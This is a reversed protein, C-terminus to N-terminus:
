KKLMLTCIYCLDFTTVLTIIDKRDKRRYLKYLIPENVWTKDKCKEAIFKQLNEKSVIIWYDKTEFAFFNTEGYLWGSKGLVNKLEIWHFNENPEVDNRKLKKLSKIEFNMPIKIEISNKAEIKQFKEEKFLSEFKEKVEQSQTLFKIKEQESIAM